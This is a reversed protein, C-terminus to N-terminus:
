KKSFTLAASNPGGGNNMNETGAACRDNPQCAKGALGATKQGQTADDNYADKGGSIKSGLLWKVHGDAALYNAGNMHRGVSTILGDQGSIPGTAYKDLSGGPSPKGGWFNKDGTAGPSDLEITPNSPDVWNNETECLMVTLAPANFASLPAGNGGNQDGLLSDNMGFSIIQFTPLPAGAGDVPVSPDNPCAFIQKSKVYPWIQGSWGATFYRARAGSPMREDYDQSYQLIGLGLQKLNSQCSSRRANERARGFVPFLISALIAIIAIVVLLEILTFGLRFRVSGRRPIRRFCPKHFSLRM